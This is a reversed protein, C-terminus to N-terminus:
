NFKDLIISIKSELEGIRDNSELLKSKIDDIEGRSKLLLNMPYDEKDINFQQKFVFDPNSYVEQTFMITLYTSHYEINRLMTAHNDFIHVLQEFWKINNKSGVKTYSYGGCEVVNFYPSNDFYALIIQFNRFTYEKYM